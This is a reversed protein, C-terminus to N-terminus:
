LKMHEMVTKIERSTRPELCTPHRNAREVHIDLSYALTLRRLISRKMEVQGLKKGGTKGNNPGPM